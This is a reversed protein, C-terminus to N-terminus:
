RRAKLIGQLFNRDNQDASQDQATREYKHAEILLFSTLFNYHKQEKQQPVTSYAVSGDTSKSAFVPKNIPWYEHWNLALGVAQLAVLAGIFLLIRNASFTFSRIKNKM